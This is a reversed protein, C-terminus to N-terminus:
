SPKSTRRKRFYYIMRFVAGIIFITMLVYPFNDGTKQAIIPFYIISFLLIAIDLYFM